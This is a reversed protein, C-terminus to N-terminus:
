VTLSHTLFIGTGYQGIINTLRIIAFSVSRYYLLSDSAVSLYTQANREDNEQLIVAQGNTAQFIRIM